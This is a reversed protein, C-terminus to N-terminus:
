VQVVCDRDWARSWKEELGDLAPRAPVISAPRSETSMARLTAGRRPAAAFNGAPDDDSRARRASMSPGAVRGPHLGGPTGGRAAEGGLLKQMAEVITAAQRLVVYREPVTLQLLRVAVMVERKTLPRTGAEARELYWQIYRDELHWLALVNSLQGGHPSERLLLGIDQALAAVAATPKPEAQGTEVFYMTYCGDCV